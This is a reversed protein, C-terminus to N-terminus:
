RRGARRRPNARRLRRSVRQVRDGAGRLPRGAVGPWLPPRAGARARAATRELEAFTAPPPADPRHALVAHGRGRVLPRRVPPREVRQRRDHGPLLLRDAAPLPEPGPDVGGGRVGRDLGRRAPPHRAREGPRQAVARLAPAAPRGRRADAAAGGPHRPAGPRIAGAAPAAGARGRGPRQRSPHRGRSRGVAGARLGAGPASRALSQVLPLSPAFDAHRDPCRGASRTGRASRVRYYRVARSAM